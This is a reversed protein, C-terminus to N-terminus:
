TVHGVVSSLLKSACAGDEDTSRTNCCVLTHDYADDRAFASGCADCWVCCDSCVHRLTSNQYSEVSKVFNYPAVMKRCDDCQHLARCCTPFQLVLAALTELADTEPMSSLLDMFHKRIHEQKRKQDLIINSPVDAVAASHITTALHIIEEDGLSCTSSTSSEFANLYALFAASCAAM